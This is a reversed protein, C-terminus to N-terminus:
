AAKPKCIEICFANRKKSISLQIENGPLVCDHVFSAAETVEKINAWDRTVHERILAQQELAKNQGLEGAAQVGEYEFLKEDESNCHENEDLLVAVFMELTAQDALHMSAMGTTIQRPEIHYRWQLQSCPEALIFDLKRPFRSEQIFLLVRNDIYKRFLQQFTTRNNAAKQQQQLM